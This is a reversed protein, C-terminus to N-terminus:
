QLPAFQTGEWSCLKEVSVKQLPQERGFVYFEISGRWVPESLNGRAQFEVSGRTVTGPSGINKEPPQGVRPQAAYSALNRFELPAEWLTRLANGEIRRIVMKVGHNEPGFSFAEKTVLCENGDGLLDRVEAAV